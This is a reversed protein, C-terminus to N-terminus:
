KPRPAPPPPPPAPSTPPRVNINSNQVRNGLESGPERDGDEEEEYYANDPDETPNSM